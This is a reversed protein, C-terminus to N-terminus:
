VPALVAAPLTVTVTAPWATFTGMAVPCLAACTAAATFTSSSLITSQGMVVAAAAPTSVSVAFFLPVTALPRTTDASLASSPMATTADDPTTPELSGSRAAASAATNVALSSIRTVGYLLWAASVTSRM